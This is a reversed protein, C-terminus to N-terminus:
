RSRPRLGVGSSQSSRAAPARKMPASSCWRIAQSSRRRAVSIVTAPREFRTLIAHLTGSPTGKETRCTSDRQPERRAIDSFHIRRAQSSCRRRRLASPLYDVRSVSQREDRAYFFDLVSSGMANTPLDRRRRGRGLDRIVWSRVDFSSSAGQRRTACGRSSWWRPSRMRM